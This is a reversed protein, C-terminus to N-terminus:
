FFSAAAAGSNKILPEWSMPLSIFISLLSLKGTMSPSNKELLSHGVGVQIIWSLCQLIVAIIILILNSPHYLTLVEDVCYSALFYFVAAQNCARRRFLLSFVCLIISLYWHSDVISFILISSVWEIPITVVHLYYNWTNQHYKQYHHLENRYENRLYEMRKLLIPNYKWSGVVILVFSLSVRFLLVFKLFLM